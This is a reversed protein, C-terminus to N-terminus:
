FDQLHKTHPELLRFLSNFRSYLSTMSTKAHTLIYIHVVSVEMRPFLNIELDSLVATPKLTPVDPNGWEGGLGKDTTKKKKRLFFNM